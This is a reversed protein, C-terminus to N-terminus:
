CDLVVYSYIGASGDDTTLGDDARAAGDAGINKEHVADRRIREDNVFFHVHLHHAFFVFSSAGVKLNSKPECRVVKSWNTIKGIKEPWGSKGDKRTRKPQFENALTTDEKALLSSSTRGTDM